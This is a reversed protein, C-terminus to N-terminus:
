EDYYHLSTRSYVLEHKVEDELDEYDISGIIEGELFDAEIVTVTVNEKHRRKTCCVFCIVTLIVFLFSVGKM